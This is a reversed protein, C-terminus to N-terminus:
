DKPAETEWKYFPCLVERGGLPKKSFLDKIDTLQESVLSHLWKLVLAPLILIANTTVSTVLVRM